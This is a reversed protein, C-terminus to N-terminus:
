TSGLKIYPLRCRPPPAPKKRAAVAIKNPTSPSRRLPSFFIRWLPLSILEDPSQTIRLHPSKLRWIALDGITQGDAAEGIFVRQGPFHRNRRKPGHWDTTTGIAPGAWLLSERKCVIGRQTRGERSQAVARPELVGDGLWGLSLQSDATWLPVRLGSLCIEEGTDRMPSRLIKGGAGQSGTNDRSNKSPRNRQMM